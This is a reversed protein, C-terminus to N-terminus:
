CHFRDFFLRGDRFVPHRVLEVDQRRLRAVPRLLIPPELRELENQLPQELLLLRPAGESEQALQDVAQALLANLHGQGDTSRIHVRNGDLFLRLIRPIALQLAPDLAIDPPVRHGHHHVRVPDVVSEAPM